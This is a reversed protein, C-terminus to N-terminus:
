VHTIIISKFHNELIFLHQYSLADFINFTNNFDLKGSIYM